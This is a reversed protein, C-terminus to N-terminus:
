EHPNVLEAWKLRANRPAKPTDGLAYRFLWQANSKPTDGLAYRFLWQANGPIVRVDRRRWSGPRRKM